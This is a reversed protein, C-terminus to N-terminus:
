LLFVSSHCHGVAPALWPPPVLCDSDIQLATLAKVPTPLTDEELGKLNPKQSEGVARHGPLSRDIFEMLLKRQEAERQTQGSSNGTLNLWFSYQCPIQPSSSLSTPTCKRLKRGEPKASGEVWPVARVLWAAWESFSSWLPPYHSREKGM